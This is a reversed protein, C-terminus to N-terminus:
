RHRVSKKELVEVRDQLEKTRQALDLISESISGGHEAKFGLVQIKEVNKDQLSKLFDEDSISPACGSIFLLGILLVKKCNKRHMSRRRIGFEICDAPIHWVTIAAKEIKEPVTIPVSMTM